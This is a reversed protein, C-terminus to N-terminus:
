SWFSRRDMWCLRICNEGVFISRKQSVQRYNDAFAAHWLPRRATCRYNNIIFIIIIMILTFLLIFSVILFVAGLLVTKMRVDMDMPVARM